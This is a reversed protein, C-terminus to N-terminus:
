ATGSHHSSPMRSHPLFRRVRQNWGWVTVRMLAERVVHASMKSVGHEREQFDIPVERVQLGADLVRRVLDVQFCYGHSAVSGLDVAELTSRRFARYGGTADRLPLGLAIRVYANGGRSLVERRRPWNKVSGGPVWRSGLVLAAGDSGGAGSLASLLRHLQEPRHSGDADMEVVVDYSRELAWAFGALYAAGLGGKGSRHLVHVRGTSAALQDALDGTGDPSADDVVLVDVGPSVRLTREVIGGLNEVENFTPIVVLTDAVDVLHGSAAPDITDAPRPATQTV